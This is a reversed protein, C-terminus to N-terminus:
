YFYYNHILVIIIVFLISSFVNVLCAKTIDKKLIERENNGIFPKEVLKGHYVNPGGFKCNLIGALAAEPYGSNPSAHQNGYKFVFILARKSLSVIIMLLATIRAPIFNFVDDTKAAFFGFKKFRESKYGIMSDLTNVLKYTFMLPIGGIAYYFLPAIVGDSLNESLTELVAIRIKNESLQKTDRGVIRSLQIRGAEIGEKSLKEEVMIAEDILNRNALGYFALISTIIYYLYTDFLAIKIIGWFVFFTLCLLTLTMIMGQTKQFQNKNLKKELFYIINGFLRIPHPLWHPDGILLDLLFGAILPIVIYEFTM